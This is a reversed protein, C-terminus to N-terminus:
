GCHLRRPAERTVLKDAGRSDVNGAAAGWTAGWEVGLAAAEDPKCGPLKM